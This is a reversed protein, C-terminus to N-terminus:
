PNEGPGTSARGTSRLRGGDLFTGLIFAAVWVTLLASAVRLVLVCGDYVRDQYVFTVAGTGAPVRVAKYALFARAVPLEVGGALAKWKRHWVDAYYLWVDVAAPAPFEVTLTNANFHAVRWPLDARSDALPDQAAPGDPCAAAGPAPSLLLANGRFEPHNLAQALPGDALCAAGAFVQLVPRAYGSINRRAESERGDFAEILDRMPNQIFIPPYLETYLEHFVFNNVWAYFASARRDWTEQRLVEFRPSDSYGLSRQAVFPLPAFETLALGQASLPLTRASLICYRYGGLDCLHLALLLAAGGRTLRGKWAMWGALALVLVYLATSLVIQEQTFNYEVKRSGVKMVLPWASALFLVFAARLRWPSGPDGALLRDIGFGAVFCAFLTAGTAVYAIHRCLNMGPFYRWALEAVLGGEGLSFLFLVLAVVLFPAMRRSPWLLGLAGGLVVLYGRYVSFARDSTHLGRLFDAYKSIGARGGYTLFNELPVAGGEGRGAGRFIDANEYASVYVLCAAVLLFVVALAADKWSPRFARVARWTGAPFCLAVAAFWVSLTFAQIVSFYIVMNVSTLLALFAALIFPWRRQLELGRHVLYIVLPIAHFTDLIFFRYEVGVTTLSVAATVFFASLRHEFVRRSLLWTGTLLIGEALLMEAYLLHLANPLAVAKGALAAALDVAMAFFPLTSHLIISGTTGHAMYKFWKAAWEGHVAATTGYYHCIFQFWTDGVNPMRRDLVLWATGAAMLLWLAALLGRDAWPNAGEPAPRFFSAPHATM